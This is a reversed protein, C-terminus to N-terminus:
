ERTILRARERREQESDKFFRFAQWEDVNPWIITNPFHRELYQGWGKHELWLLDRDQYRIEVEIGILEELTGLGITRDFFNGEGFTGCAVGNQIYPSDGDVVDFHFQFTSADVIKVSKVELIAIRHIYREVLFCTISAAFVIALLHRIQIRM